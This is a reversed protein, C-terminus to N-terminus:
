AVADPIVAVVAREDRIRRLVVGVAIAEAILAVAVEILVALLIEAIEADHLRVEEHGTVEHGVHVSVTDGVEAVEGQQLRAEESRGSRAGQSATRLAATGRPM